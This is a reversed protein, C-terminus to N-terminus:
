CYLPINNAQHRQVLKRVRKGKEPIHRAANPKFDPKCVQPFLKQIEERGDPSVAKLAEPGTFLSESPTGNSWIVQHDDFLIHWYEVGGATNEVIDVGSLPLLKRAPILVDRSGFMRMAIRSSVLVRHQPSVSLDQMPFGTGLADARIQIPKLKPNAELQASSLRRSGIWRIPEYSGDYILVQDRTTLTEVRMPGQLTEILTGSSFCVVDVFEGSANTPGTVQQDIVITNDGSDNWAADIAATNVTLGNSVELPELPGNNTKVGFM